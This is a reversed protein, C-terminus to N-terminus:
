KTQRYDKLFFFFFMLALLFYVASYNNYKRLKEEIFSELSIISERKTALSVLRGNRSDVNAYITDRLNIKKLVKSCNLEGGLYAYVSAQNEKISIKLKDGSRVKEECEINGITFEIFILNDKISSEYESIDQNLIHRFGLFGFVISCIIFLYKNLM